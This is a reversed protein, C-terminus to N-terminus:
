AEAFSTFGEQRLRRLMRVIKNYSSPYSPDFNDAFEGEDMKKPVGNRDLPHLDRNQLRAAEKAVEKVEERREERTQEEDLPDGCLVSLACLVPELESRSGNLKPLIKQHVQADMAKRLQDKTPSIENEDPPSPFFCPYIACFRSIESATRFALGSGYGELVHFFVELEDKVFGRTEEELDPAELSTSVFADSFHCGCSEIEEIDIDTPASLFSTLDEWEVRFEISNARDLVKPSFTYTTEDVNVTGTVYLNPPISDLVHPIDPSDDSLDNDYLRIEEGSEIASLFFAFYREVHSLNMEDLILFYPRTPVSDDRFNDRAKLIVDLASGKVFRDPRLADRYGLIDEKGTWDAEVAVLECQESPDHAIWRSFLQALKTKGSGSLGTLIVFPKTMLSTIYRRVLDEGTRYGANQFSEWAERVMDGAAIRLLKSRDGAFYRSQTKDLAGTQVLGKLIRTLSRKTYRTIDDSLPSEWVSELNDQGPRYGQMVWSFIEEPTLARSTQLFANALIRFPYEGDEEHSRFVPIMADSYGADGEAVEKGKGTLRFRSVGDDDPSLDVVNSETWPRRYSRFAGDFNGDSERTKAWTPQEDRSRLESYVPSDVDHVKEGEHNSIGELALEWRDREWFQESNDSDIGTWTVSYNGL